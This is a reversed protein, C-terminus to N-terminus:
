PGAVPPPGAACTPAAPTTRTATPCSRSRHRGLRRRDDPDDWAVGLEDAPNYYGDVLYTITMDTLAAFGHAVGPRSSCARHHNTAPRPRARAHRRRDPRGRAPRAAGRPGHRLARVLLRGPAPPLAARRHRGAQRDGRNGQVMERGRRPVVRPPLDRRLRGREDGHVDPDVVYVGRHRRSETVNAMADSSWTSAALPRRAHAPHRPAAPRSRVVEVERGILSDTSARSTSSAATARAGGLARDRLRRDRLRAAIPPSRARRLQRDIRTGAGIIAPGRITSGCSRPARRSWSGARSARVDDDVTGDIRPELTELVLRNAELLPTSSAPTSGGARRAGRPPGPPRPRHLWQIADTIELEGRASPEIAACRRTSPATSCTSASSPSTAVAPRRAERGPARRRRRRRARGRRLAAPRAGAGAPDPGVPPTADSCARGARVRRVFGASARSSCTTAWTCSSTTTASSTAPSSCATPWASRARGPPHLHGPRGLAVGDGVAARIEDRPTASSSASRPSARGRGHAELGYFLIPKNAVPVLQKASTHTIPRLRTGAGGALILAKM